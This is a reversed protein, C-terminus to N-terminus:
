LEDHAQSPDGDLVGIVETLLRKLELFREPGLRQEIQDHVPYLDRIATEVLKRGSNTLMALSRRADDEPVSRVLLGRAALDRLIRSLSSPLLDTRVSMETADLHACNYLSRVVRWQAETLDHQRLTPRFHSAVLTRARLLLIPLPALPTDSPWSEPASDTM